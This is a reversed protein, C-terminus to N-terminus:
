DLDIKPYKLSIDFQENKPSCNVILKRKVTAGNLRKHGSIYERYSSGTFSTYGYTEEWADMTVTVKIEGTAADYETKLFDSDSDNAEFNVRGLKHQTEEECQLPAPISLNSELKLTTTYNGSEDQVFTGSTPTVKYKGRYGNDKVELNFTVPISNEVDVSGANFYMSNAPIVNIVLKYKGINKISDDGQKFTIDIGGDGSATATVYKATAPDLVAAKAIDVNANGIRVKMGYATDSREGMANMLLIMMNQGSYRNAQSVVDVTVKTSAMVTTGDQYKVECNVYGTYKGKADIDTLTLKGADPDLAFRDTFDSYTGKDNYNLLDVFTVEEVGEMKSTTLEVVYQDLASMTYANKLAFAKKLTSMKLSVKTPSKTLYNGSLDQYIIDFSLTGTGFKMRGTGGANDLLPIRLKAKGGVVEYDAVAGMYAGVANYISVNVSEPDEVNKLPTKLTVVLEDDGAVCEYGAFIKTKDNILVSSVAPAASQAFANNTLKLTTTVTKGESNKKSLTVTAPSSTMQIQMYQSNANKRIIKANRVSISGEVLHYTDDEPNYAWENSGNALAVTIVSDPAQGDLSLEESDGSAVKDSVKDDEDGYLYELANYDDNDSAYTYNVSASAKSGDMGYVTYTVKGSKSLKSISKDASETDIYLSQESDYPNFITQPTIAGESDVEGVLYTKSTDKVAFYMQSGVPVKSSSTVLECMGNNEFYMELTKVNVATGYIDLYAVDKVAKDNGRDYDKAKVALGYAKGDAPAFGSEISVANNKVALKDVSTFTKSSPSTEEGIVYEVAPNKIIKGDQDIATVSIKSSASKGDAKYIRYTKDTGWSSIDIASNLSVQLEKITPLVTIEVTAEVPQPEGNCLACVTVRYKGAPASDSVHAYVGTDAKDEENIYNYENDYDSSRVAVITRDATVDYGKSDVVSKVKWYNQTTYTTNAGLNVDAIKIGHQGAYLKSAAATKKLTIKDAFYPKKTSVTLKKVASECIINSDSPTDGKYLVVSVEANVKTGCGAKDNDRDEATLVNGEADVFASVTKTKEEVLVYVVDDCVGKADKDYVTAANESLQIKYATNVKPANKPLGLNFTLDIDSAAALSVTPANGAWSPSTTTVYFKELEDGTDENKMTVLVAKKTPAEVATTIDIYTKGSKTVLKATAIDENDTSVSLADKMKASTASANTTYQYSVCSGIEQKVGRYSGGDQDTLDKVASITVGTVKQSVAFSVDTGAGSSSAYFPWCYVTEKLVKGAQEDNFTVYYANNYLKSFMTGSQLKRLEWQRGYKNCLTVKYETNREVNFMKQSDADIEVGTDANIVKAVVDANIVEINIDIGESTIKYADVAATLSSNTFTLKTSTGKRECTVNDISWECPISHSDAGAIEISFDSNAPVKVTVVGDAATNIEATADKGASDKYTAKEIKFGAEPDSNDADQKFNLNWFEERNIPKAVINIKIDKETVNALTTLYVNEPEVPVHRTTTRVMGTTDFGVIEYGEDPVIKLRFGQGESLDSLVLPVESSNPVWELDELNSGSGYSYEKISYHKESDDNFSVTIDSMAEKSTLLIDVGASTLDKAPIYYGICWDGGNVSKKEVAKKPEEASGHIRYYVENSIFYDSDSVSIYLNKGIDYYKSEYISGVSNGVSLTEIGVEDSLTDDLYVYLEGLESTKVASLSIPNDTPFYYGDVLNANRAFIKYGIEVPEAKVSFDSYAYEVNGRYVSRYANDELYMTDLYKNGEADTDSDGWRADTLRILNEDYKVAAEVNYQYDNEGLIGAEQLEAEDIEKELIPEGELTESVEDTESIETLDTEDASSEVIEQVDSEDSVTGMTEADAEPSAVDETEVTEEASDVSEVVATEEAAMVPVNVSGMLMAASLLISLFRGMKRRM